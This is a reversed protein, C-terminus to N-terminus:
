APRLTILERVNDNLIRRRDAPEFDKLERVYERPEPLAEIHPWDSGFIVRDAGMCEVVTYVDDEWFPNIWVHRRFTEIPDETWYGPMKNSTSRVKKILDPLHEAGNEISAIRLNPFRDLHREFILTLLYDRIAQEIAFSKISPKWGGSFTAAFGDAAYGNSSGGSDGAHVVVAIGAENALGWFADFMPDFPNKRGEITTPAAPRMVVARAGNDLAWRLEEAAWTPDALTLYPASFIRDQYAFPWDEVLWRNFARFLLCVGEPDHALPEEYIMGLTPFVLCGDLGQEDLTALRSEPQRYAARIPERGSLFEMPNRGDPNGRFYEYMAGPMAVPDFTPNTVARSVRGGIVHYRRGGVESWQIVRSGLAPDLHRTFADLAEYYHNDGDFVPHGLDDFGDM